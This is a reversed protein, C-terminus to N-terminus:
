VSQHKSARHIAHRVQEDVREPEDGATKQVVPIKGGHLTCVFGGPIPSNGCREGSRNTATCQRKTDGLAERAPRSIVDEM